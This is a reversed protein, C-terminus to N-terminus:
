TGGGLAAGGGGGGGGGGLGAGALGVGVGQATDWRLKGQAAVHEGVALMFAAGLDALKRDGVGNIRRFAGVDMPYDRAMQRLAVDSFIVFAPVDREDALAKRLRRLKELLAEDCAPAALGPAGPGHKKQARTLMVFSRSALIARGKPTVELVSLKEETLRLLGLRLLERGVTLWEARPRDKGVGYTSLEEHGLRRVKESDSGVLVAAVHALGAGLGSKQRIRIVCSLMKQAEVTGDYRERPALCSDCGGCPGPERAEGFYALLATRRCDGSEAFSVM